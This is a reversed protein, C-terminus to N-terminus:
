FWVVAVIAAAGLLALADTARVRIRLSRAVRWPERYDASWDVLALAFLGVICWFAVDWSAAERGLFSLEDVGLPANCCLRNISVFPSPWFVSLALLTVFAIAGLRRKDDISM